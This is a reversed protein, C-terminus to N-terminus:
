MALLVMEWSTADLQTLFQLWIKTSMSGGGEYLLFPSLGQIIICCYVIVHQYGTQIAYCGMVCYNKNGNTTFIEL